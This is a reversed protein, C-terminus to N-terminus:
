IALRCVSEPRTSYFSTTVRKILWIIQTDSIHRELIKALIQHDISAFFKQIDCKLIYCSRSNNKSVERAFHRLRNLARHTGKNKRCSYVDYIFKKNFYPYLKEYVLHHLLRDRVTAKHINRPKPDSIHFALYPGHIYTCNVLSQQLDVLNGGLETRFIMVDKKHRKGCLFREWVVLLNEIKIIDIYKVDFM